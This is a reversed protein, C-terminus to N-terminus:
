ASEIGLACASDEIMPVCHQECIEKVRSVDPGVYGNHNVFIVARCDGSIKVKDPDMCLTDPKVDVLEINLGLFKAADAGATFGYAPFLVTSREPLDLSYLAM